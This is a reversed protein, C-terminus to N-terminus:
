RGTQRQSDAVADALRNALAIAEQETLTFQLPGIRLQLTLAHLREVRAVADFDLRAMGNLRM